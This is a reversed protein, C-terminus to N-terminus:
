VVIMVPRKHKPIGEGKRGAGKYRKRAGHRGEKGARGGGREELEGEGVV